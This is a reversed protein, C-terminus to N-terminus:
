GASLAALQGRAHELVADNGARLAWEAALAPSAAWREAAHRRLGPWTQGGASEFRTILGDLAQPGFCGFFMALDISPDTIQAETWDLIGTLRGDGGLLMHGPHLDGHVLAEYRPWLEDAELWRQWRAWLADPPQLVERTAAMAGGIAQRAADVTKIPVGADRAAAIPIAQLAVLAAAFSDMFVDAPAAPDIINWSPGRTPDITVAPMGELRPYAIVEPAFVRWDPVAVPLRSRALALVRAEIPMSTLVDVRRPTRVVWPVGDQDCAHVVLFDLGSNDVDEQDSSLRLGHRGAAELLEAVTAIPSFEPASESAPHIPFHPSSMNTIELAMAGAPEDPRTFRISVHHM